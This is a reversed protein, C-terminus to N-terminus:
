SCKTWEIYFEYVHKSFINLNNTLTDKYSYYTYTHDYSFKRRHYITLSIFCKKNNNCKSIYTKTRLKPCGSLIVQFKIREITEIDKRIGKINWLLGNNECRARYEIKELWCVIRRYITGKHGIRRDSTAWFRRYRDM